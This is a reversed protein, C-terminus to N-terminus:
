GLTFDSLGLDDFQAFRAEAEEDTAALYVGSEDAPLSKFALRARPSVAQFVVRASGTGSSAIYDFTGIQMAQGGTLSNYEYLVLTAKAIDINIYM